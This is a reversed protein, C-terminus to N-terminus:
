ENVTEILKANVVYRYSYNRSDVCTSLTLIQDEQSVEVGTDYPTHNKLETFLQQKLNQDSTNIQYTHTTQVDVEGAAFIQYRRKVGEQYIDIYPHERYYNENKYKKLQGFMSGNKMNHGYLITNFDDFSPTNLCEVFVTGAKSYNKNLDHTLYYENNDTQVVAYSIDTGEIDIWALVDSNMSKLTNFDVTFKEQEVTTVTEKIEENQQDIKSYDRYITFLQYSSYLFVSICIILCIKRIIEKM